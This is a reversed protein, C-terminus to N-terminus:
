GSDEKNDLQFFKPQNLKNDFSENVQELKHREPRGISRSCKTQRAYSVWRPDKAVLVLM